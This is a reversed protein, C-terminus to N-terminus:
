SGSRTTIATRNGNSDVTVLLRDTSDAVNRFACTTGGGGSSLGSLTAFMIRLIEKLDYSGELEYGFISTVGGSSITVGSSAFSGAQASVTVGSDSIPTNAFTTASVQLPAIGFIGDYFNQTVVQFDKWVELFSNSSLSAGSISIRLAGTVNTNDTTLGLRYNGSSGSILQFSNNALGITTSSNARLLAATVGALLSINDLNTAGSLYSVFPGLIVSVGTNQRLPNM